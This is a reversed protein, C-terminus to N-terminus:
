GNGDGKVEAEIRQCLEESIASAPLIRRDWAARLERDTDAVIGRLREVDARLINRTAVACRHCDCDSVPDDQYTHGFDGMVDSM